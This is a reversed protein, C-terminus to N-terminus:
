KKNISDVSANRHQHEDNLSAVSEKVTLTDMKMRRKQTGKATHAAKIIHTEIIRVSLKFSVPRQLKMRLKRRKVVLKAVRAEQHLEM